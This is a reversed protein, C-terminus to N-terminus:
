AGAEPLSIEFVAGGDAAAGGCLDGGMERMVDRSLALGLGLGQGAAKTSFFPQFLRERAAPTLGPGSDTVSLTVVGDSSSCEIVIRRRSSGAMADLANNVLNAIVRVLQGEDGLAHCAPLLEREITCPTHVLRSRLVALAEDVVSAIDVRARVADTRMPFAALKSAADNVRASLKLMATISDQVEAHKSQQLLEVATEALMRISAMPQNLEHNVCAVLHGVNSMRQAYALTQETKRLEQEVELDLALMEARMATTERQQQTQARMAGVHADYAGKVDGAQELLEALVLQANALRAEAPLAAFRAVTRRACATAAAPRHQRRHFETLRMWALGRELPSRWRRSWVALKFLARWYTDVAGHACAAAAVTDLVMAGQPSWTAVDIEDISPLVAFAQAFAEAAAPANGSAARAESLKLPPFAENNRVQSDLASHHQSPLTATALAAMEVAAELEGALSRAMAILTRCRVLEPRDAMKAFRLAADTLLGNAREHEGVALCCRGRMQLVKTARWRDDMRELMPQAELCLVLARDPRDARWMVDAVCYLGRVLVSPDGDARALAVAEEGLAIACARDSLVYQNALELKREVELPLPKEATRHPWQTPADELFAHLEQLEKM